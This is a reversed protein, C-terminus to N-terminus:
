YNVEVYSYPISDAFSVVFTSDHYHHFVAYVYTQAKVARIAGHDVAIGQAFLNGLIRPNRMSTQPM